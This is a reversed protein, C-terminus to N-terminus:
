SFARPLPVRGPFAHEEAAALEGCLQLPQIQDVLVLEQDVGPNRAVARGQELAPPGARSPEFQDRRLGQTAARHGHVVPARTSVFYGERGSLALVDDAAGVPAEVGSRRTRVSLAPASAIHETEHIDKSRLVDYLQREVWCRERPEAVARHLYAHTPGCGAAPELRQM